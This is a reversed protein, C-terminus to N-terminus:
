VVRDHEFGVSPAGGERRREFRQLRCFPNDLATRETVLAPAGHAVVSGIGFAPKPYEKGMRYFLEYGAAIRASGPLQALWSGPTSFMCAGVHALYTAPSLLARNFEHLQYLM